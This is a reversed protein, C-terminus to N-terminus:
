PRAPCGRGHPRSTSHGGDAQHGEAPCGGYQHPAQLTDDPRKPHQHQALVEAFHHHSPCSLTLPERSQHHWRVLLLIKFVQLRAFEEARVASAGHRHSLTKQQHQEILFNVAVDAGPTARLHPLLLLRPLSRSLPRSESFGRARNRGRVISNPLRRSRWQCGEQSAGARMKLSDHHALTNLHAKPAQRSGVRRPGPNAKAATGGKAQRIIM